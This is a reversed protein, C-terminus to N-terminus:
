APSKDRFRIFHEEDVKLRYIQFRSQSLFLIATTVYANEFRETKATWVLM